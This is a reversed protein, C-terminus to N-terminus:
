VFYNDIKYICISDDDENVFNEIYFFDFKKEYLKMNVSKIM